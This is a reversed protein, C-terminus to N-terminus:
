LHPANKTTLKHDDLPKRGRFSLNQKRLFASLFHNSCKCNLATDDLFGEAVMSHILMLVISKLTPRDLGRGFAVFNSRIFQAITAEAEDPLARNAMEFHEYSRRWEALVRVQERWSYLTTLPVGTKAHVSPMSYTGDPHNLFLQFIPETLEPKDWYRDYAGRFVASVLDEM